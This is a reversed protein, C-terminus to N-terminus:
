RPRHGSVKTVDVGALERLTQLTQDLPGRTRPRRVKAVDIGDGTGTKAVLPLGASGYKSGYTRRASQKLAKQVDDDGPNTIKYVDLIEGPTKTTDDIADWLEVRVSSPLRRLFALLRSVAQDFQDRDVQSLDIEPFGEDFQPGHPNRAQRSFQDFQAGHREPVAQM